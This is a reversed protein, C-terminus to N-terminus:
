PVSAGCRNNLWHHQAEQYSRPTLIGRWGGEVWGVGGGGVGVGVGWTADCDGVVCCQQVMFLQEAPPTLALHMCCPNGM